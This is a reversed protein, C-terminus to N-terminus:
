WRNAWSVGSLRGCSGFMSPLPRTWTEGVTEARHLAVHPLVHFATDLLAIREVREPAADLRLVHIDPPLLDNLDQRLKGLDAAKVLAGHLSAVQAFAHVGADTRGSGAVHVASGEIEGFVQELRGQITALGPQVQWGHFDTGDYAITLKIRRM